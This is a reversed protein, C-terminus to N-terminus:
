FFLFKKRKGYTSILGAKEASEMMINKNKNEMYSPNNIGM